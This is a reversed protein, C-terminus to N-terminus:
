AEKDKDLYRKIMSLDPPGTTPDPRKHSYPLHPPATIIFGMILLAVIGFIIEIMNM